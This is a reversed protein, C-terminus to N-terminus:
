LWSWVSWPCVIVAAAKCILALLGPVRSGSQSKGIRQLCLGSAIPLVVAMVEDTM